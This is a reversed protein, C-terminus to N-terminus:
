PCFCDGFFLTGTPYVVKVTEDTLGVALRLIVAYLKPRLMNLFCVIAAADLVGLFADEVLYDGGFPRRYAGVAYLPGLDFFTSVLGSGEGDLSTGEFALLNFRAVVAEGFAADIGLGEFACDLIPPPTVAEDFRRAM